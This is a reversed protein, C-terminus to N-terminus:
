SRWNVEQAGYRGILSNLFEEIATWDPVELDPSIKGYQSRVRLSTGKPLFPAPFFSIVAICQETTLQHIHIFLPSARRSFENNNGEVVAKTGKLSSFYYNHPLGYVSRLPAKTITSQSLFKFILDHDHKPCANEPPKTQFSRFKQFLGGIKQLTEEWSGGEMLLVRTQATIATYTPAVEKLHSDKALESRICQSLQDISEFEVDKYIVSGFGRRSRAGLGGFLSLLRFSRLVSDKLEQSSDPPFVLRFTLTEGPKIYQRPRIKRDIKNILGYGLYGLGNQWPEKKVDLKPLEKSGIQLLFSSQGKTSGFYEAETRLNDPGVARHWFRLLGKISPPRLESPIEGEKEGGNGLFLPTVVKLTMPIPEIVTKGM